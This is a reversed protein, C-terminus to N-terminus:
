RKEKRYIDYAYILLFLLSLSAIQCIFVAAQLVPQLGLPFPAQSGSTDMPIEVGPEASVVVLQYAESADPLVGELTVSTVNLASREPDFVIPTANFLADVMDSYRMFLANFRQGDASRLECRYHMGHAPNLPFYITENIESRAGGGWVMMNEVSNNAKGAAWGSLNVAILLVLVALVQWKKM